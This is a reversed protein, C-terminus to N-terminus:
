DSVVTGYVDDSAQVVLYGGSTGGPALRPWYYNVGTALLPENTSPATGVPDGNPAIRQRYIAYQGGSNHRYDRWVVSYNGGIFAVEPYDQYGAATSIPLNEDSATGILSGDTGSILQGEINVAGAADDRWVVLYDAGDSAVSTYYQYDDENSVVIEGEVLSADAAVRQAFVNYTDTGDRDYRTYGVLFGSGNSAIAPWQADDSSGAGFNASGSVAGSTSVARVAIGWRGTSSERDRFAVMYTGAGYAIEPDYAHDSSSLTVMSGELTADAAVRQARVRHHSGDYERWVVLYDSGDSAVRPEDMNSTGSDRVTFASGVLTGDTHIRQGHVVYRSTASDYARWVSLYSTGNFAVDPEYARDADLTTASGVTDRGDCDQDVSDYPVEARGPNVLPNTDDCDSGGVDGLYGDGDVDRLDSGSCDQDIGDYPLEDAGPFIAADADDCDGGGVRTFGDDDLDDDRTSSDCDDDTGNYPVEAVGPSVSADGDNCDGSSPTYGDGDVDVASCSLDAGSCDQDVGDGCRDVGIPSVDARLDDCDAGGGGAFGDGDRDSLDMGSCDQDIGDYPVETAGPRVMADSDDCDAGGALISGFGDADLDDDRTAPDCDDDTGNYVTEEAAPSVAADADDCDGAAPTFGDGDADVEACSLATGSCDQDIADGCIDPSAPHIDARTDNCDLGGTGGDFGDMDVDTLDAGSCDQDVGDYPVEAAGPRVMANSDDCDGGGGTLSRFGDADLDDDPTDTDCDDDAGNYPTEVMGPHIAADEDNCDGDRPSYGDMDEDLTSCSLDAGSCDQDIADGCVDVGAPNVDPRVDDCDDGAEGGAYGDRDVDTLDTGSCDQDVGDYPVEDAGPFVAADDDDCDGGGRRGFGDGDLDDDPTMLSCDEDVGNYPVELADPHIAPDMENCDGDAPSFGDGDIDVVSCALDAGSCDQDVGDGCTEVGAPSVDPRVDDCDDGEPGGRFGDEDLDDRDSGSCDQDIGDYLVEDAGPFAMPDEDLCDYGGAALALYGDGDVDVVDEGDCDQDIGDYPVEEADPHVTDDYDRCDVLADYGDGDRDAPAQECGTLAWAAFVLAVTAWAWCTQHREAAPDAALAPDTHQPRFPSHSRSDFM